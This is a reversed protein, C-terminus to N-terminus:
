ALAQKSASRVKSGAGELRAGGVRRRSSKRRTYRLFEALKKCDYMSIQSKEMRFRPPSGAPLFPVMRIQLVTLPRCAM